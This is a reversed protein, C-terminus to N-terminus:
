ASGLAKRKLEEYEQESLVGQERLQALKALEDATSVGSVARQAAEAEAAMRVDQPTVKPRAIIYILAGLFPLAVLLLIWGAKAWGSHDDRRIIDAFLAIFIWFFTIWFFVVLMWWFVDLFSTEALLM